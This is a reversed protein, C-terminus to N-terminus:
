KKIFLEKSPVPSTYRVIGKRGLDIARNIFYKAEYMNVSLNSLKTRAFKSIDFHKIYKKMTGDTEYSFFDDDKEYTHQFFITKNELEIKLTTKKTFFAAFYPIEDKLVSDVCHIMTGTFYKGLGFSFVLADLEALKYYPSKKDWCTESYQHEKLLYDSKSGLACVSHRNASRKVGPYTRFTEAILGAATPTRNMRFISDPKRLLPYAPMALTGEPGIETIIADIFDNITGTYNYFEDWSSHIFVTAGRKLGISKMLAIIDQTSYRQKYFMREIKRKNIKEFQELSRIKFRRKVWKGIKVKIKFFISM